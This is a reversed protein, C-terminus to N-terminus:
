QLVPGDGDGDDDNDDDDDDDDDDDGDGDGDGDGDDGYQRLTVEHDSVPSLTALLDICFLM